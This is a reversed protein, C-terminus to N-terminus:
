FWVLKTKTVSVLNMYENLFYKRAGIHTLYDSPTYQHGGQPM